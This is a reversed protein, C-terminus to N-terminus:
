RRTTMSLVSVNLSASSFSLAPERSVRLPQFPAFWYMSNCTGSSCEFIDSGIEENACNLAVNDRPKGRLGIQKGVVPFHGFRGLSDGGSWRYDERPLSAPLAVSRM